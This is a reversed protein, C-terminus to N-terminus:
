TPTHSPELVPLLAPSRPGLGPPLHALLAHLCAMSLGATSRWEWGGERHWAPGVQMACLSTPADANGPIMPPPLPIAKLQAPAGRRLVKGEALVNHVATHVIGALLEAM